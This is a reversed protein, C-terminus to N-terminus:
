SRGGARGGSHQAMRSGDDFDPTLDLQETLRQPLFRSINAETEPLGHHLTQVANRIRGRRESPEGDADFLAEGARDFIADDRDIAIKDDVVFFGQRVLDAPRYGPLLGEEALLNEGPELGM